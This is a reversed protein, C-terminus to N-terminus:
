IAYGLYYVCYCIHLLKKSDPTVKPMSKAQYTAWFSIQKGRTANPDSLSKNVYRKSVKTKLKTERRKDM